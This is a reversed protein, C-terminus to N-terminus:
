LNLSIKNIMNIKYDHESVLRIKGTLLEQMMGQKLAQTKQLQQELAEIEADMDSLIQAIAQQEQIDKPLKIEFEKLHNSNISDFTSGTSYQSWSNEKFMLYYFLYDNSYKIACVGRGISCNFSAKAIEGVPARVTMIMDGKEAQKPFFSTYTRIITKRNKIDANGQILPLGVGEYNYFESLPSQGMIITGVEGLKKTEWEETFGQLRKKGTLLEQMAGQKIAKKKAILTKLNQILQDTDSLTNAIQKQEEITPPLPIKTKEFESKNIMPVAQEGAQSKISDSKLQLIYFVYENNVNNSPLIANIQQNSTLNVSAIGSKGITSGICTFLVSKSPFIRSCGFGKKSLKKETDIIYKNFGLDAPSVFLYKDGYNSKDNTPPTSGTMVFGVEKIEVVEWDEPIVGIETQKYGKKITQVKIKDLNEQNSSKKNM